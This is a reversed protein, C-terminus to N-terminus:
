QGSSSVFDALDCLTKNLPESSDLRLASDLYMFIEMCPGAGSDSIPTTPHSSLQHQNQQHSSNTLGYDSGPTDYVEEFMTSSGNNVGSSVQSELELGAGMNPSSVSMPPKNGRAFKEAPDIFSKRTKALCRAFLGSETQDLLAQQDASTGSERLEDLVGVPLSSDRGTESAAQNEKKDLLGLDM